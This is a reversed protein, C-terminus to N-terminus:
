EPPVRTPADGAPHPASAYALAGPLSMGPELEAGSRQEPGVSSTSHNVIEDGLNLRAEALELRFQGIWLHDPVPLPEGSGTARVALELRRRLQRGLVAVHDVVELPRAIQQGLVTLIGLQPRQELGRPLPDLRQLLLDAQRHDLVVGGVVLVHDDLDPGAGAAVLRPQPGPVQIPHQSAVGLPPAEADLQQRGAVARVRKRDLAVASVRHELELATRVADLPHGLGLRLAPDM